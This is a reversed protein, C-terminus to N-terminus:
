DPVKMRDVNEFQWREFDKVVIELGILMDWQLQSDHINDRAAGAYTELIPVSLKDQARLIFIPEDEPIELLRKITPYVETKHVGM